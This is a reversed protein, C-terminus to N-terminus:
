ISKLITLYFHRKCFPFPRAGEFDFNCAQERKFLKEESKGGKTALSNEAIGPLADRRKNGHNSSTKERVAYSKLLTSSLKMFSSGLSVWSALFTLTQDHIHLNICYWLDLYFSRKQIATTPNSVKCQPLSVWSALFTLTQDHIHSNICHWLDLYSM